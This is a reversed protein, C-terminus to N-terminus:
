YSLDVSRCERASTAIAAAVRLDNLADFPHNRCRPDGQISDLFANAQVVFANPAKVFDIETVDNGRYLHLTGNDMETPHLELVGETGIISIRWADANGPKVFGALMSCVVEQPFLINAVCTEERVQHAATHKIRNAFASVRLPEGFIWRLPNIFTYSMHTLPMGGSAAEDYYWSNPNGDWLAISQIAIPRGIRGAQIWERATEWIAKYRAEFGLEILVNGAQAVRLIDEGGHVSGSLPGGILTPLKKEIAWLALADQASHPVEILIADPACETLGRYDTYCASCNLEAGLAQASSLRRAAIGVLQVRGTSLFARIRRHAMFGAGIVALRIMSSSSDNM